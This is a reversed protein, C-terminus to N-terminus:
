SISSQSWNTSQTRCGVTRRIGGSLVRIRENSVVNGTGYINHDEYRHAHLDSLDYLTHHEKPFDKDSSDSVGAGAKLPEEPFMDLMQAMLATYGEDNLYRLLSQLDVVDSYPWDFLEDIDMCLSWCGQGFRETLYRKMPIKYGKFPLGSRLVTVSDHEMAVKVTGDVSGNDLFVIHRAGLSLHHEVFPRVYIRSDRVLCVVVAEDESLDLTGPGYPHEVSSHM